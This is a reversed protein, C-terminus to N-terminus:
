PNDRAQGAGQRNMWLSMLLNPLNRGAAAAFGSLITGMIGLGGGGQSAAVAGQPRSKLMRWLLLGLLGAGVGAAVPHAKILKVPSYRERVTDRAARIEMFIGEVHELALLELEAPTLDSLTPRAKGM